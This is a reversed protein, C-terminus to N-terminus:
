LSAIGYKAWLGCCRYVNAGFTDGRKIQMRLQLRWKKNISIQAGADLLLLEQEEAINDPALDPSNINIDIIIEGAGRKM